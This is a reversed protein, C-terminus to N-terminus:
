AHVYRFTFNLRKNVPKATKNIGHRWYKQTSGRMILLSGHELALKHKDDNQKHKFIFDRPEGLSVSAIIPNQGLEPEDDSHMGMSDQGHRYLNALVSNFRTNCSQECFGKLAFLQPEWMLPKMLMGSYSYESGKDGYWAQQRPVKMTKGFLTIDPQTWKLQEVFHPLLRDADEKKLWNPWYYVEADAMPLREYGSQATSEDSTDFLSKQM